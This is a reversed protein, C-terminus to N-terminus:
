RSTIRYTEIGDGEALLTVTFHERLEDIDYVEDDVTYTVWVLCVEEGDDLVAQMEALDETAQDSKYEVKRPSLNARFGSHYLDGANNSYPVCGEPLEDLLPSTAARVAKPANYGYDTISGNAPGILAITLLVPVAAWVAVLATGARRTRPREILVIECWRLFLITTPVFCPALLRIDLDDFGVQSRTIVMLLTFGAVYTALLGMDGDFAGVVREAFPRGDASVRLLWVVAGVGLVLTLLATPLTPVTPASTVFKFSTALANAVNAAPGVDSPFRPGLATDSVSLNRLVWLGAPIVAPLAFWVATLFSRPFGRRRLLSSLGIWGALVPVAYLAQYRVFFAVACLLGAAVLKRVDDDDRWGMILWLVGLAVASFVVETQVLYGLSILFPSMALAVVQAYLATATRLCRVTLRIGLWVCVGTAVANIVLGAIDTDAGTLWSGAAIMLPWLPPWTVLPNELWFGLGTGELLSDATAVYAAADPGIGPSTFRSTVLVLFGAVVAAAVAWWRPLEVRQSPAEATTTASSTDGRIM